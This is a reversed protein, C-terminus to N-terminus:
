HGRPQWCDDLALLYYAMGREAALFAAHQAAETTCLQKVLEMAEHPHADDYHAHARLWAMSRRDIRADGRQAYARMGKVVSVTWDGTAWEIAINTAAIGEALSGRENMHWLYYNVADMAAPPRVHDLEEDTIGFGKAWDRYWYLHRQEIRINQILWDRTALVGPESTRHARALNLGMYHPFNAVLPYFNLLARRFRELSLNGAAMEMFLPHRAIRDKLPVLNDWFQQAWPPHPTLELAPADDARRHRAEAAQSSETM